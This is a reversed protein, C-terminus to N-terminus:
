AKGLSQKRWRMTLLEFPLGVIASVCLGSLVLYCFAMPLSFSLHFATAASLCLAITPSHLLYLPYSLWGLFKCTQRWGPQAFPGRRLAILMLLFVPGAFYISLFLFRARSDHSILLSELGYSLPLYLAVVACVVTVTSRKLHLTPWKAALWAGIFWLLSSASVTWLVLPSDTSGRAFIKWVVVLGTSIVLALICAAIAARKGRRRFFELILPWVAYYVMEYTISWSQGYAEFTGVFAQLMLLTTVLTLWPFSQIVSGTQEPRLPFDCVWALSAAALGLIFVPYIRTVRAWAYGRFTYKGRADSNMISLHICFGSIVFFGSVWYRGQGLTASLFDILPTSPNGTQTWFAKVSYEWAHALLVLIAFIGRLFDIGATTTPDLRVSGRSTADVVSASPRLAEAPIPQGDM